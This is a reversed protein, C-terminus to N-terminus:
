AIHIFLVGSGEVFATTGSAVVTIEQANTFTNLATVASGAVNAGIPTMNASTLAIVGGTVSTGAIKPTLTTAKAGTTVAATDQFSTKIIRGAFGPTIRAIVGADAIASLAPVPVAIIATQVVPATATLVPSPMASFVWVGGDADVAVIQGAISRSTSGDTLAVTQDDVAYCVAGVNAQAITDGATSNEWKFVGMDIPVGLAGAAHGVVTNDLIDNSACRGVTYKGTATVAPKAYGGDIQILSGPFIKVNDGIPIVVQSPLVGPPPTLQPTNRPIALATM